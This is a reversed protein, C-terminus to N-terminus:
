ESTISSCSAEALDTNTIQDVSATFLWQTRESASRARASLLSTCTDISPARSGIGKSWIWHASRAPQFPSASCGAQLLTTALM